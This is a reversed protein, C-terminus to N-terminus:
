KVSFLQVMQAPISFYFGRGEKDPLLCCGTALADELAGPGCSKNSTPFLVPVVLFELLSHESCDGLVNLWHCLRKWGLFPFKMRFAATRQCKEKSEAAAGERAAATMTTM